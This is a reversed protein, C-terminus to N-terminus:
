KTSLKMMLSSLSLTGEKVEKLLCGATFFSSTGGKKCWRINVEAIASKENGDRRPLIIKFLYDKGLELESYAVVKFGGAGIDIMTGLLRNSTADYIVPHEGLQVRKHKRKEHM